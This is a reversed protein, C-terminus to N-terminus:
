EKSLRYIDNKHRIRHCNACLPICKKIENLMKEKSSRLMQSVLGEKKSSDLHHFDCCEPNDKFSYKCDTCELQKKYDWLFLILERRRESQKNIQKQKNKKYWADRHKKIIEKDTSPM